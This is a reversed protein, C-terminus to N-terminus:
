IKKKALKLFEEYDRIYDSEDYHDNAVVLLVCDKSFRKMVHWLMPGLKVGFRQDRMTIKQKKKGDDLEIVCSGNLCFIYQELKKHAHKGRTSRDRFMNTIFYVRRIEFPIHKGVEAIILHGDPFDDFSQLKIVGSNKVTIKRM